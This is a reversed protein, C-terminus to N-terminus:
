GVKSAVVLGGALALLDGVIGGADGLMAQKVKLAVLGLAAATGFKVVTATNM